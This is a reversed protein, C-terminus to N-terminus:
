RVIRVRVDECSEGFRLGISLGGLRLALFAREILPSEQEREAICHAGTLAQRV